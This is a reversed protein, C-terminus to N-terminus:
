CARGCRAARSWWTGSTTSTGLQAAQGGVRPEGVPDDYQAALARCKDRFRTTPASLSSGIVATNRPLEFLVPKYGRTQCVKILTELVAASTSFNRKFVPYRDALWAQM